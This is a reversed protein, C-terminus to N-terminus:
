FNGEAVQFCKLGISRWMDVVQNRDDLVFKVKYRDKIHKEYLEKKVISDKRRDGSPRTYLEDYEIGNAALWSETVERHEAARGTLVIVKYGHSYCMGTVVGVADDLLDEHARSADYVNRPNRQDIHALTGDVDVIICEEKDEDDEDVSQEPPPPALYRDYMQYIVKEPVPNERQENRRICERVPVDFFKIDFDAMFEAAISEFQNVHKPDLNTDDVVVNQGTVLARIIIEDRLGIVFAENTKSWKSNHLMARLDDKNVRVWGKEVLKRAYTTKGSAPLGKLALLKPQAQTVQRESQTVTDPTM